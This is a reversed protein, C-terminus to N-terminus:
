QLGESLVQFIRDLFSCRIKPGGRCPLHGHSPATRSLAALLTQGPGLLSTGHPSAAAPSPVDKPHSFLLKGIGRHPSSLLHLRTRSLAMHQSFLLCHTCISTLPTTLWALFFSADYPSDLMPILQGLSKITEM